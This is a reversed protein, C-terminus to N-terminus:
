KIEKDNDSNTILITSYYLIKSRCRTRNRVRIFRGNFLDLHHQQHDMKIGLIIKKFYFNKDRTSTSRHVGRSFNGVLPVLTVLHTFM